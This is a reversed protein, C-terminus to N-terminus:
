SVGLCCNAPAGELGTPQANQLPDTHFISRRPQHVLAGIPRAALPRPYFTPRANVLQGLPVSRTSPRDQNGDAVFGLVARPQPLDPRSPPRRSAPDDEDAGVHRPLIPGIPRRAPITSLSLGGVWPCPRVCPPGDGTVGLPFLFARLCPRLKPGSLSGALFVLGLQDDGLEVTQGAVDGEDGIQQLGARVKHRRVVRM